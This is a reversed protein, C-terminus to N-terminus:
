YYRTFYSGFACFRSDFPGSELNQSISPQQCLRQIWDVQIISSIRGVGWLPVSNILLLLYMFNRIFYYFTPSIFSLEPLRLAFPLSSSLQWPLYRIRSFTTDFSCLDRRKAVRAGNKRGLGEGSARLFLSRLAPTLPKVCLLPLPCWIFFAIVFICTVHGMMKLGSSSSWYFLCRKM